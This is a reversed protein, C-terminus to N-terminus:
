YSKNQRADKIRKNEIELKQKEFSLYTLCEKFNLKEIQEFKTLDGKSISYFTTWWGFNENLNGEATSENQASKENFLKPYTENIGKRFKAFFFQEM